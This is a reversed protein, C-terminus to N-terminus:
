RLLKALKPNTHYSVQAYRTYHGKCASIAIASLKDKVFLLGTLQWGLADIWWFGICRPLLFWWHFLARLMDLTVPLCLLIWGTLLVMIVVCRAICLVFSSLLPRGLEFLYGSSQLNTVSFIVLLLFQAFRQIRSRVKMCLLWECPLLQIVICWVSYFVWMEHLISGFKYLFPALFTLKRCVPCVPFKM